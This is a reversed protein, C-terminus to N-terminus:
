SLVDRVSLDTPQKKLIHKHGTQGRIIEREATTNLEDITTNFTDQYYSTDNGSVNM